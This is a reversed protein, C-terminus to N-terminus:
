SRWRLRRKRLYLVLALVVIIVWASILLWYPNQFGSSDDQNVQATVYMLYVIPSPLGTNPPNALYSIHPNGDLDMALYCPGHISATTNITQFSWIAGNMSAYKLPEPGKTIYAIHPNDRDDLALSGCRWLSDYALSANSVITQNDWSSGTWSTYVLAIDNPSSSTTKFAFHPKDKSDIVINTFGGTNPFTTKSWSSNMLAAITIINSDCYLIYPKNNSELALSLWSPTHLSSDVTQITWNSGSSFAYKLTSGDRYAVCPKSSTDFALAGFGNSFNKDITQKVWNTGTWSAYTLGNHECLLCPNLKSDLKLDFTIAYPLEQTSWNSGNWYTYRAINYGYPPTVGTYAIHVNNNSDVVIPCYGNGYGQASVDVTQTDWSLSAQVPVSGFISFLLIAFLPVSLSAPKPM